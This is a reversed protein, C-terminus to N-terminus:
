DAYGDEHEVIKPALFCKVFGVQPIPFEILVPRQPSMYIGVTNALPTLQTFKSLLELCLEMRLPEGEHCISVKENEEIKFFEEAGDQENFIFQVDEKSSSITCTYDKLYMSRMIAQFDGSPM